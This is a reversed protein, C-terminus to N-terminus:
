GRPHRPVAAVGIRSRRRGTLGGFAVSPQALLSGDIFRRFQLGRRSALISSASYTGVLTRLITAKYAHEDEFADRLAVLPRLLPSWRCNSRLCEAIGADAAGLARADRRQVARLIAARRRVSRRRDGQHQLTTEGVGQAARYRRAFGAGGAALGRCIRPHVGAGVGLAAFLLALAISISESLWRRILSMPPSRPASRAVGRRYAIRQRVGLRQERERGRGSNGEAKRNWAAARASCRVGERIEPMCWAAKRRRSRIGRCPLSRCLRAHGLRPAVMVGTSRRHSALPQHPGARHPTLTRVPQFHEAIRRAPRIAACPATLPRRGPSPAGTRWTLRM